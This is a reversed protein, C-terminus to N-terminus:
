QCIPSHNSLSPFSKLPSWHALPSVARPKTRIRTERPRNPLLDPLESACLHRSTISSLIFYEPLTAKPLFSGVAGRSAYHSLMQSCLFESSFVCSTLHEDLSAAITIAAPGERNSLLEYSVCFSAKLHKFRCLYLQM